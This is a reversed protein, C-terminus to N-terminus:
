ALQEWPTQPTPGCLEAEAMPLEEGPYAGGIPLPRYSTTSPPSSGTLREPHVWPGMADGMGRGRVLELQKSLVMTELAKALLGQQIKNLM